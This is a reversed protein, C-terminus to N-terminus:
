RSNDSLPSSPPCRGPTSRPGAYVTLLVIEDDKSPTAKHRAGCLTRIETTEAHMLLSNEGTLPPLTPQPGPSLPRSPPLSKKKGCCSQPRPLFGYSCLSPLAPRRWFWEARVDAFARRRRNQEQPAAPGRPANTDKKGRRSSTTTMLPCAEM